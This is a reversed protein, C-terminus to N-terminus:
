PQRQWQPGDKMLLCIVPGFEYQICYIPRQAARRATAGARTVGPPSLQMSQSESVVDVAGTYGDPRREACAAASGDRRRTTTMPLTSSVNTQNLRGRMCAM